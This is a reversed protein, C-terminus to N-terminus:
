VIFQRFWGNVWEDAHCFMWQGDASVMFSVIRLFYILTNVLSYIFVDIETCIFNMWDSGGAWGHVSLPLEWAKEGCLDKAGCWSRRRRLKDAGCEGGRRKDIHRISSFSYTHKLHLSVYSIKTGAEAEVRRVMKRVVSQLLQRRKLVLRQSHLHIAAATVAKRIRKLQRRSWTRVVHIELQSSKEWEQTSDACKLKVCILDVDVGHGVRQQLANLYRVHVLQNSLLKLYKLIWICGAFTSTFNWELRISGLCM